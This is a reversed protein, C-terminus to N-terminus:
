SSNAGHIALSDQVGARHLHHRFSGASRHGAAIGWIGRAFKTESFAQRPASAPISVADPPGPETTDVEM